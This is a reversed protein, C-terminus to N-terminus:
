EQYKQVIRYRTMQVLGNRHYDVSAVQLSNPPDTTVLSQYTESVGPVSVEVWDRQTESWKGYLKQRTERTEWRDASLRFGTEAPPQRRESLYTVTFNDKTTERWRVERENDFARGRPLSDTEDLSVAPAFHPAKMADGREALLTFRSGGFVANLTKVVTSWNGLLGAVIGDAM